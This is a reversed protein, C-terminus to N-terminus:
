YFRIGGTRAIRVSVRLSVFAALLAAVAFVFLMFLEHTVAGLGAGQLILKRSAEIAYTIPLLYSVFQLSEPISSVPYLAGGFLFSVAGFFAAVPDGRKLALTCSASVIGLSGFAVLTLAFVPITAVLASLRYGAGLFMAFMLVLVVRLGYFFLPYVGSYFLVKELRSPTALMAELTGVVQDYRVTQSFSRLCAWMAEAMAFGIVAYAFYDGGYGAVQEPPNESIMDSLFFLGAVYFVLSAVAWLFSLRYSAAQLFDRKFFAWLLLM